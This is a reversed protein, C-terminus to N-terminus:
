RVRKYTNLHDKYVRNGEEASRFRRHRLSPYTIHGDTWREVYWLDYRISGDDEKTQRFEAEDAYGYENVKTRLVISKVIKGM